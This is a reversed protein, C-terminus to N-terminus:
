AGGAMCVLFGQARQNGKPKRRPGGGGYARLGEEKGGASACGPHAQAPRRPAAPFPLGERTRVGWGGTTPLCPAVLDSCDSTSQQQMRSSILGGLIFTHTQAGRPDSSGYCVIGEPRSSRNPQVFHSRMFKEGIGREKPAMNTTITVVATMVASVKLAQRAEAALRMAHRNGKRGIGSVRGQEGM